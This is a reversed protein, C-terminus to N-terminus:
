NLSKETVELRSILGDISSKREPIYKETRFSGYVPNMIDEIERCLSELKEDM